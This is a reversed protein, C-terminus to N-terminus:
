AAQGYQALRGGLWRRLRRALLAPNRGILIKVSVLVLTIPKAFLTGFGLSIGM